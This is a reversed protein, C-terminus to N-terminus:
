AARLLSTKAEIGALLDAFADAFKEVGEAELTAVVDDYDLGAAALEALLAHPRPSARWSRRAVSRATTASRSSRRPPMTNVTDPGILEEVYIVDRYRLTRRRPRRGSAGSRRHRGERRAGALSDLRLGGALAAYALKANAVALRGALDTRGLEELRRDAERTSAPSSSARSRPSRRRTAAAPSSGSSVASTPRPSRRTASSRSSSRSTSRRARARHLGRDRRARGRDGPDQRLPQAPRGGERLATGARLHARPRLRPDSRGRALGLRRAGGHARLRAADRRLRRPHRGDRPPLLDRRPRVDGTTVERLQADYRDGSALAKQFISPNSTVGTVSDDAVLRALEGSDLMERSLSDIWVSVGADSLQQLRTSSM